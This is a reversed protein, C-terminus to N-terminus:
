DMVERSSWYSGVMGAHVLAEWLMVAGGCSAPRPVGEGGGGGGGRRRRKRRKRGGRKGSGATLSLKYTCSIIIIIIIANFKGNKYCYNNIVASSFSYKECLIFINILCFRVIIIKSIECNINFKVEICMCVVYVVACVSWMGVACVSWM